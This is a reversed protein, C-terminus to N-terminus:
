KEGLAEITKGGCNSCYKTPKEHWEETIAFDEGCSTAWSDYEDWDMGLKQRKWTCTKETELEKIRKDKKLLEKGTNNAWEISERELETIRQKLDANDRVLLAKDFLESMM